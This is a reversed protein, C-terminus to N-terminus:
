PMMNSLCPQKKFYKSEHTSILRRGNRGGNPSARNLGYSTGNGDERESRRWRGLCWRNTLKCFGSTPLYHLLFPRVLPSTVMCIHIETMEFLNIM